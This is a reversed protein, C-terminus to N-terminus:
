SKKKVQKQEKIIKPSKILESYEESRAFNGNDVFGLVLKHASNLQYKTHGVKLGTELGGMGTVIGYVKKEIIEVCSSVLHSAVYPHRKLEHRTMELLEYALELHTSDKEVIFLEKSNTNVLLRLGQEDHYVRVLARTLREVGILTM